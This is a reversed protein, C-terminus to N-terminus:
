PPNLHKLCLKRSFAPALNESSLTQLVLFIRKMFMQIKRQMWIWEDWTNDWQWEQMASKPVAPPLICECLHKKEMQNGNQLWAAGYQRMGKTVIEKIAKAPRKPGQFQRQLGGQQTQSAWGQSASAAWEKQEGVRATRWRINQLYEKCSLHATFKVLWELFATWSFQIM